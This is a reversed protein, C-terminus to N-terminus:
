LRRNGACRVPKGGSLVQTYAPAGDRTRVTVVSGGVCRQDPKLRMAAERRWRAEREAQAAALRTRRAAAADANAKDGMAQVSENFANIARREKIEPVVVLSVFVVITLGVIASAIKGHESM